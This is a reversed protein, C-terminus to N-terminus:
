KEKKEKRKHSKDKLSPRGKKPRQAISTVLWKGPCRVDPSYLMSMLVSHKCVCDRFFTPCTCRCKVISGWDEKFKHVIHFYSLTKLVEPAKMGRMDPVQHVFGKYTRAVPSYEKRDPMDAVFRRLGETTPFLVDLCQKDNMMLLPDDELIEELRAYLSGPSQKVLKVIKSFKKTPNKKKPKFKNYLKAIAEESLETNSIVSKNNEPPEGDEIGQAKLFEKIEEQTYFGGYTSGDKEKRWAGIKTLLPYQKIEIRWGQDDTLHWHFTNLKYVAM